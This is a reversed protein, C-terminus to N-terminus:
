SDVFQEHCAQSAKAKSGDTLKCPYTGLRMTGGKDTIAYQDDLMGYVVPYRCDRDFETSNIDCASSM